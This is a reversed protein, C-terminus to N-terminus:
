HRRQEGGWAPAHSEADPLLSHLAFAIGEEDNGRTVWRAARKAGRTGSGMAVGHGAAAILPIDNDGDGFAMTAAMPVGLHAALAQLARGKDVGAATVELYDDHSLHAACDNPITTALTRLHGQLVDNAAMFMLKHPESERRATSPDVHPQMGTIAVHRRVMDDMGPVWWEAGEFWGLTLGLHLGRRAVDKATALHVRAEQLLTYHDGRWEGVWAGQYAIAYHVAPLMRLLDELEAPARASALALAVGPALRELSLRTASTVRHDSTLLTGDVDFAILRPPPDFAAPGDLITM